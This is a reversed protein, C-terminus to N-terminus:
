VVSKRDLGIIEKGATLMKFVDATEFGQDADVFLLHTFDGNLVTNALEDRAIQILSRNAIFRLKYRVGYERLSEVLSILSLAFTHQLVGGFCPCGILLNIDTM